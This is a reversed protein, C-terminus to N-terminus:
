CECNNLRKLLRQNNEKLSRVEYDLNLIAENIPNIAQALLEAQVLWGNAYARREREELTLGM